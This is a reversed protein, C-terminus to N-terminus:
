AHFPDRIRLGSFRRFDRDATILEAVGHEICLAAIHADHIRSGRAQADRLVTELVEAHASSQALLQLGPAGLLVRVNDWADELSLPAPKTRSDTMVRLYEYVCPWPVAWPAPSAALGSVLALADAYYPSDPLSAYVLINTDLALM